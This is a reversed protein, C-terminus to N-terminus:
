WSFHWAPARGAPSERLLASTVPLAGVAMLSDAVKAVIEATDEPGAEAVSGSTRISYSTVPALAALYGEAPTPWPPESRGM